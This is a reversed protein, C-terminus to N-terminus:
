AWSNPSPSKPRQTEHGISPIFDGPKIDKYLHPWCRLKFQLEDAMLDANAHFVLTGQYVTKVEFDGKGDVWTVTGEDVAACVPM